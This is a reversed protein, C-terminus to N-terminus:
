TKRYFPVVPDYLCPEWVEVSIFIRVKELGKELGLYYKEMGAPLPTMVSHMQTAHYFAVPSPLYALNCYYEQNWWKEKGLQRFEMGKWAQFICKQFERGKGSKWVWHSGQIFHFHFFHLNKNRRTDMMWGTSICSETYRDSAKWM